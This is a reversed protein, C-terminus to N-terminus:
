EDAGDVEPLRPMQSMASTLIDIILQTQTTKEARAAFKLAELLDNPLKLTIKTSEFLDQHHLLSEPVRPASPNEYFLDCQSPPLVAIHELEEDPYASQLITWNDNGAKILEVIQGKGGLKRLLRAVGAVTVAFGSQRVFDVADEGELGQRVAEVIREQKQQAQTAM